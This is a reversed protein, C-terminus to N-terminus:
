QYVSVTFDGKADGCFTINEPLALLDRGPFERLPAFWEVCAASIARAGELKRDTTTIQLAPHRRREWVRLGRSTPSLLVTATRSCAQM